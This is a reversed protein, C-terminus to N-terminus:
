GILVAGQNVQIKEPHEIRYSHTITVTARIMASIACYKTTSLEIAREVEAPNINKGYFVYEVHIDTFVQPHEERVNGTLNVEFGELPVRKKKLIPIVDSATCGGLAMLLLEKPRSGAESGGFAAPGDMIVWHNSDSKAALTIGQLQKVFARKTAM